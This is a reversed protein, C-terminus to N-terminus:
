LWVQLLKLQVKYLPGKPGHAFNEGTWTDMDYRVLYDVKEIPHTWIFPTINTQSLFHDRLTLYENKLLVAYAPEFIRKAASRTRRQEFGADFSVIISDVKVSEKLPRSCNPLQPTLVDYVSSVATPFDAM